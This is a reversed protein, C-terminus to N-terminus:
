KAKGYLIAAKESISYYGAKEYGIYLTGGNDDLDTPIKITGDERIAEKKVDVRRYQDHNSYYAYIVDGRSVNKVLIYDDKRDKKNYFVIDKSTLKPTVQFTKPEIKYHVRNSTHGLKNTFEVYVDKYKEDINTFRYEGKNIDNTNLTYEDFPETSDKSDYFKFTYPFFTDVPFLLEFFNHETYFLRDKTLTLKEKSVSYDDTVTYRRIRQNYHKNMENNDVDLASIYQGKIEPLIVLRLYHKKTPPLTFSYRKKGTAKVEGLKVLNNRDTAYWPFLPPEYSYITYKTFKDENRMGDWKLTGEFVGADKNIDTFSRNKPYNTMINETNSLPVVIPDKSIKNGEIAFIKLSKADAPIKPMEIIKNKFTVNTVGINKITKGNKDAYSLFVNFSRDNSILSITKRPNIRVNFGDPFKVSSSRTFKENNVNDIVPFNYSYGEMYKKFHDHYGYTKVTLTENKTLKTNKPVTYVFRYDNHRYGTYTKLAKTSGNNLFLKFQMPDNGPNHDSEDDYWYSKDWYFIVKGSMEGMDGDTDVFSGKAPFSTASAPLQAGIVLIVLLFTSGLLYKINKM